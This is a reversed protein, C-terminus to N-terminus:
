VNLLPISSCGSENIALTLEDYYCYEVFNGLLKDYWSFEPRWSSKATSICVTEPNQKLHEIIRGDVNYHLKFYLNLPDIMNSSLIHIKAIGFRHAARTVCLPGTTSIIRVEHTCYLRQYRDMIEEFVFNWFLSNPKSVIFANNFYPGNLFAFCSTLCILLKKETLTAMIVDNTQVMSNINLKKLCIQDMDSYVGGFTNLIMYKAIDVRQIMEFGDYIDILNPYETEVLKQISISNWVLVTSEPYEDCWSKLGKEYQSPMNELGQYWIKHLFIRDDSIYEKICESINPAKSVEFYM